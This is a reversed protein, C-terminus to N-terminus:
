LLHQISSMLVNKKISFCISYIELKDRDIFSGVCHAIIAQLNKGEKLVKGRKQRSILLRKEICQFTSNVLFVQMHFDEFIRASFFCSFALFLPFYPFM